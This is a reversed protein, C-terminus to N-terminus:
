NPSPLKNELIEEKSVIEEPPLPIDKIKSVLSKVQENLFALKKKLEM